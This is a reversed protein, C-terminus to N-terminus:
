WTAWFNLLVRNGRLANLSVRNGNLDILTFDPAPAGTIASATTTQPVAGRALCGSLILALTGQAVARLWRPLPSSSKM